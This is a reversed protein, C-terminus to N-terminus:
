LGGPVLFNLMAYLFIFLILALIANRIRNRAASVKSPDGGASSYQIGGIVISIVVAVGVLASLFNILPDLYSKILDCHNVDNCYPYADHQNVTVNPGFTCKAASCTWYQDPTPRDSGCNITASTSPSGTTGPCGVPAAASVVTGVGVPLLPTLLTALFLVFLLRPKLKLLM